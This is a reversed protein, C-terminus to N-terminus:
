PQAEYTERVTLSFEFMSLWRGKETSFELTRSGVYTVPTDAGAPLWGRLAAKVQTRAPDYVEFGSPQTLAIAVGFRHRERQSVKFGAEDPPDATEVLPVVVAVAAPGIPLEEIRRADQAADVQLLASCREALRTAVAQHLGEM